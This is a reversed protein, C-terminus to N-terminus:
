DFFDISGLGFEVSWEPYSYGNAFADYGQSQFSNLEEPLDPSVGKWMSFDSVKRVGEYMLKIADLGSRNMNESSKGTFLLICHTGRPGGEPSKVTVCAVFYSEGNHRVGFSIQKGQYPEAYIGAGLTTGHLSGPIESGSVMIVNAELKSLDGLDNTFDGHIWEMMKEPQTWPDYPAWAVKEPNALFYEYSPIANFHREKSYTYVELTPSPM